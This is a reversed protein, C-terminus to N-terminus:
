RFLFLLQIAENLYQAIAQSSAEVGRKFMRVPQIGKVKKTRVWQGDKTKFVLFPKTVPGHARTGFEQYRAYPVTTEIIAEGPQVWGRISEKLAGTRVPTLEKVQGAVHQASRALADTFVPHKPDLAELLGAMGGVKQTLADMGSFNISLFPQM